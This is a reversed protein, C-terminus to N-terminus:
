RLGLRVRKLAGALLVHFMLRALLLLLLLLIPKIGYWLFSPQFAAARSAGQM